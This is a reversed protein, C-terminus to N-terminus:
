AAAPAQAQPTGGSGQLWWPQQANGAAPSLPAFQGPAPETYVTQGAPVQYGPQIEYYTQGAASSVVTPQGAGAGYGIGILSQNANTAYPVFPGAGGGAGTLTTPSGPTPTVPNTVSGPAGGVPGSYSGGPTQLTESPINVTGSSGSSSSSGSIRRYLYIGVVAVVLWGWVPLPGAKQTLFSGGGGSKPPPAKPPPAM